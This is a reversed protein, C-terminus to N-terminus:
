ICVYFCWFLANVLYFVSYDFYKQRCLTPKINLICIAEIKFLDFVNYCSEITNFRKFNFNEACCQNNVLHEAIASGKIANM